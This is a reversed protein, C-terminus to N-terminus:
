DSLLLDFPISAVLDILFRGQFYQKMIEKPNVIEENTLPNKITTRLNILIDLIYIIDSFVNIVYNGMSELWQPEFAIQIPLSFCIWLSLIIILVDWRTRFIGNQQFIM